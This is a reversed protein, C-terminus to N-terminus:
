LKRSDYAGEAAAVVDDLSADPATAAVAAEVAGELVPADAIRATVEGTEIALEANMVASGLDVLVAVGDGDDAEEIASGIRPASTGIEGDPGGGAAVIPADEGAMQAAVEVIGAAADRSHSVVVLGVM